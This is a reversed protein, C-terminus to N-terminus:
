VRPHYDAITASPRLDTMGARARRLSRFRLPFFADAKPIHSRLKKAFANKVRRDPIAALKMTASRAAPTLARLTASMVFRSKIGLSKVLTRITAGTNNRTTGTPQAAM